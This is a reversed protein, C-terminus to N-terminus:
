ENNSILELLNLVGIEDNNELDKLELSTNTKDSLESLIKKLNILIGFNKYLKIGELASKSLNDVPNLLLKDIFKKFNEIVPKIILNTMALFDNWKSIQPNLQSLFENLNKSFKTKKIKNKADQLINEQLSIYIEMSENLYKLYKNKFDPNNILFITFDRKLPYIRGSEPSNDIENLINQIIHIKLKSLLLRLFNPEEIFLELDDNYKECYNRIRNDLFKLFMIKNEEKKLILKIEDEIFRSSGCPNRNEKAELETEDTELFFNENLISKFSDKRLQLFPNKLEFHIINDFNLFDRDLIQSNLGLANIFQSTTNIYSSEILNKKHSLNYFFDLFEATRNTPKKFFCYCLKKPFSKIPFDKNKLAYQHM